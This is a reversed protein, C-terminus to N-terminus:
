LNFNIKRLGKILNTSMKGVEACLSLAKETDLDYIRQCLILQTELEAISGTAIGSFQITERRNLRKQGEAINSPVSVAARRLQSGLTYTESQPLKAVVRYVEETLEMARQWVILDRYNHSKTTQPRYEPM